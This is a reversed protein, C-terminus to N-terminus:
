VEKQILMSIQEQTKGYSCFGDPPFEVQHLACYKEPDLHLAQAIEKDKGYAWCERCQVGEIEQRLRQNENVAEDANSAVKCCGRVFAILGAIFLAALAIILEKM